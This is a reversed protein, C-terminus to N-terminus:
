QSSSNSYDKGPIPRTATQGAVANVAIALVQFNPNTDVWVSYMTSYQVGDAQPGVPTVGHFTQIKNNALQVVLTVEFSTVNQNDSSLLVNVGYQTVATNTQPIGPINSFSPLWTFHVDAACAVSAALLMTLAFKTM